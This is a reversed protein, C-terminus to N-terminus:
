KDNEKSESAIVDKYDAKLQKYAWFSFGSLWCGLFVAIAIEM